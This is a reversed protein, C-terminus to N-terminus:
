DDAIREEIRDAAADLISVLSWDDGGFEIGMGKLSAGLAIIVAEQVLLRAQVEQPLGRFSDQDEFRQLAM